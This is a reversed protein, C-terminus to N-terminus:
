QIGTMGPPLIATAGVPPRPAPSSRQPTGPSGDETPAYCKTNGESDVDNPDGAPTGGADLCCVDPVRLTKAMCDDYAGVDFENQNNPNANATAATAGLVTAGLVAATFLLTSGAHTFARIRRPSSNTMVQGKNASRHCGVLVVL